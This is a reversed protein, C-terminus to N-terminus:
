PAALSETLEIDGQLDPSTQAVRRKPAADASQADVTNRTDFRYRRATV